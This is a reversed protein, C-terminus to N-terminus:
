RHPVPPIERPADIRSDSEFRVPGCRVKVASDSFPRDEERRTKRQLTLFGTRCLIRLYRNGNFDVHRNIDAFHRQKSLENQIVGVVQRVKETYGPDYKNIAAM